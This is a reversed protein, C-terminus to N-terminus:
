LEDYVVINEDLLQFLDKDGTVIVTQVKTMEAMKALTGIIDDAEYGALEFTPINLSEVVQKIYPIQPILDEPMPPRHAKYEAYQKHRFTPEKRDFAIALYEPQEKNIIKLLMRTFGYIANTSFGKSNSLHQIAYFARYIYSNGDIIFLRPTKTPM